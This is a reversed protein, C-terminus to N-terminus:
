FRWLEGRYAGCDDWRDCGGSPFWEMERTALPLYPECFLARPRRYAARVLRTTGASVAQAICAERRLVVGGSPM